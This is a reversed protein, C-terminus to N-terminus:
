KGLVVVGWGETPKGEIWKQEEEGVLIMSMAREIFTNEDAVVKELYVPDSFIAGFDDLSEVWFEAAGDFESELVPAHAATRLSTTLSRSIHFQSYKILLKQASPVSLFIAPHKKSWYDHFHEVSVTDLKKVLITIRTPM